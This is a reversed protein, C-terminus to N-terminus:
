GNSRRKHWEWSTRVITELDSYQPSFGLQAKIASADAVLVDADGLRRKSETISLKKGSVKEIAAVIEKNSHGVGTGVNFTYTDPETHLKELALLHAQTLDLVHIYDRVCTGDPTKYDTGFLTFTKDEIIAGMARPIIHTEPDHEEGLSADLAAGCANFYRLVTYHLNYITGYWALMKEVMYKSEGYPNTPNKPHGEPIPTTTPNGYVGATSSFIFNDAKHKQMEELLILSANVNNEFYIYPNSMSEGMSIYGAFHIIGDYTADSFLDSVFAKDLLNGKKYVLKADQMIKSGRELSDAVVVSHGRDLLLKTMFSGIYGTGGTVLIKM